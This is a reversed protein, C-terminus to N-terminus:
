KFYKNLFDIQAKSSKDFLEGPYYLLGLHGGDITVLEKPQIIRKFVEYAVKPNSHTM